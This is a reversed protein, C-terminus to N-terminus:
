FFVYFFLKMVNSKSIIKQIYYWFCLCSFFFVSLRVGDKLLETCGFVNDLTFLCSLSHSLINASWMNSLPSIDLVYFSSRCGVYLCIVSKKFPCLILYCWCSTSDSNEVMMVEGCFMSKSLWGCICTGKPSDLLGASFSHCVMSAFLGIVHMLSPLFFYKWKVRTVEGGLCCLETDLSVGEPQFKEWLPFYSGLSHAGLKGTMCCSGLLGGETKSGGFCQASWCLQFTLLLQNCLWWPEFPVHIRFGSWPNWWSSQRCAVQSAKGPSGGWSAQPSEGHELYRVWVGQWPQSRMHVGLSLLFSCQYVAHSWMCFVLWVQLASLLCVFTLLLPCQEPSFLHSASLM